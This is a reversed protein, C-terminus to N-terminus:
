FPVLAGSPARILLGEIDATKTRLREPLRVVVDIEDEGRQLLALAYVAARPAQAHNPATALFKQYLSAAKETDREVREVWYAKHLIQEAAADTAKQCIAPAALLGISLLYATRM